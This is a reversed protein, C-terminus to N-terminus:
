CKWVFVIKVPHEFNHEGTRLGVSKTELQPPCKPCARQIPTYIHVPGDKRYKNLALFM